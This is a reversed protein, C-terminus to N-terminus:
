CPLVPLNVEWKEYDGNVDPLSGTAQEDDVSNQTEGSKAHHGEHETDSGFTNPNIVM